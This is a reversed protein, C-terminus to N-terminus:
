ATLEQRLQHRHAEESAQMDSIFIDTGAVVAARFEGTNTLVAPRSPAHRHVLPVTAPGGAQPHGYPNYGGRALAPGSIGGYAIRSATVTVYWPPHGAAPSTAALRERNERLRRQNARNREYQRGAEHGDAYAIKWALLGLAIALVVVSLVLALAWYGTSM